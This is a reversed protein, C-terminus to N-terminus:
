SVTELMLRLTDTIKGSDVVDEVPQNYETALFGLYSFIVFGAFFSTLCNSFSVILSDRSKLHLTYSLM